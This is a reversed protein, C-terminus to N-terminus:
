GSHKIMCNKMTYESITSEANEIKFTVFLWIKKNRKFKIEKWSKLIRKEGKLYKNNTLEITKKRDKNVIYIKITEIRFKNKQIRTKGKKGNQKKEFNDKQGSRNQEVKKEFDYLDENQVKIEIIDQGHEIENPRETTKIEQNNEM